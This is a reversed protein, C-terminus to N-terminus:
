NTQILDFNSVFYNKNGIAISIGYRTNPALGPLDWKLNGTRAFTDVGTISCTGISVFCKLEVESTYLPLSFGYNLQTNSTVDTDAFNRILPIEIEDLYNIADNTLVFVGNKGAQIDAVDTPFDFSAKLFPSAPATLDVVRLKNDEGIFATNNEVVLHRPYNLSKYRGQIEWNGLQNSLVEFGNDFSTNNQVYYLIDNQIQIDYINGKRELINITPNSQQAINVLYISNEAGIHAIQNYITISRPKFDIPITRVFEFPNISNYLYSYQRLGDYWDAVFITNNQVTLTSPTNGDFPIETPNPLDVFGLQSPPTSQLDVSELSYVSKDYLIALDNYIKTQTPSSSSTYTQGPLYNIQKPNTIDYKRLENTGVNNMLLSNQYININTAAASNGNFSPQEKQTSIDTLIIGGPPAPLITGDSIITSSGGVEGAVLLNNIIDFAGLQKSIPGYSNLLPELIQGTTSIQYVDISNNKVFLKDGRIKLAIATRNILGLDMAAPSLDKAWIYHEGSTPGLAGAIYLVDGALEVSMPWNSFVLPFFLQSNFPSTNIDAQWVDTGAVYYLMNSSTHLVLDQVESGTTITNLLAPILPNALSYIGINQGQYMIYASDGIIKFSNINIINITDIPQLQSPQGGIPFTFVRIGNSATILYLFTDTATSYAALSKVNAIEYYDVVRMNLRDSIDVQYLGFDSSLLYVTNNIVLLDTAIPTQPHHWLLNNIFPNTKLRISNGSYNLVTVMSSLPKSNSEQDRVVLEFILTHNDVQLPVQFSPTAISSDNLLVPTGHTQQWLYTISAGDPDYSKSGDLTVIAGVSVGIQDEGVVAQPKKSILTLRVSDSDSLGDEDTVTLNFIYDINPVIISPSSFVPNRSTPNLLTGGLTGDYTWEYSLNDRDFDVSKDANLTYNTNSEVTDDDGANAIPSHNVVTIATNELVENGVSDTIMLEIVVVGSISPAEFSMISGNRTDLIVPNGSLQRWRYVLSLNEPDVSNSADLRVLQRKAPNTDDVNLVIQPPLNEQNTKEVANNCGLILLIIFLALTM